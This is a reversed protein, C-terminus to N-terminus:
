NGSQIEQKGYKIVGQISLNKIYLIFYIGFLRLGSIKKYSVWVKEIRKESIVAEAEGSVRM